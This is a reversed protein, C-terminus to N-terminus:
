IPQLMWLLVLSLCRSNCPLGREFRSLTASSVGLERAMERVGIRESERYAAMM